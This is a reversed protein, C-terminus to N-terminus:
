LVLVRPPPPSVLHYVDYGYWIMGRIIILCHYVDIDSNVQRIICCRYFLVFTLVLYIIEINSLYHYVDIDSNVQRIICCRYFLVFTLVLYRIEINSIRYEIGAVDFFKTRRNNLAVQYWIDLIM